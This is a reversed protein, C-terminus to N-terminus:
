QWRVQLKRKRQATYGTVIVENLNSTTTQLSLAVTSQNAVSIDRPTYGVSSVTLNNRGSPVSISFNGSADTQTAFNTGKVAVTAGAVPQANSDTIKGTVTKQAFLVNSFLLLIIAIVFKTTLKKFM